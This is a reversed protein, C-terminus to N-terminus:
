AGRKFWPICPSTSAIYARYLKARPASWNTLMREETMFTVTALIISNFATGCLM